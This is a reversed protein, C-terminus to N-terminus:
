LCVIVICLLGNDGAAKVLRPLQLFRSRGVCGGNRLANGAAPGEAGGAAATRGGVVPAGGGAAEAQCLFRLGM